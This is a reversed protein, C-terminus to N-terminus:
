VTIIYIATKKNITMVFYSPRKIKKHGRKLKGQGGDLRLMIFLVQNLNYTKQGLKRGSKYKPM